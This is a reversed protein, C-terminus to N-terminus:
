FSLPANINEKIIRAPNGGVIVNAPVDKTVVAGAAVISNDGITIGPCLVASGGIWVGNGIRIEKGFEQGDQRAQANIPHSATYIQVSPGFLVNSGVIVKAVDLIVCNFNLYVNDGFEINRGYDCYFPPQLWLGKGVKGFIKLCLDLRSGTKIDQVSHNLENLLDRVEARMRVLEPDNANYMEGKIMKNFETM